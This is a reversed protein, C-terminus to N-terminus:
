REIVKENGILAQVEELYPLGENDGSVTTVLAGVANAFELARGPSFGNLVSYIYGADFGDGAGVTDIPKISFAEKAYWTKDYLVKAGNVGDKVVLQQIEYHKACNELAKPSTDGIIMEIEDLGTLLIDVFPFIEQYAAKAQELTWLKLRINPDFSVTIDKERAIELVRKTIELNKPNIALFVGTLHILDIGELMEEKIDEPVMTLIPSNYRYYFTKGTGDERIEKFNLSSPYGEVFEVNTMDVGEGRAFNYIVRAFEDGGLRSAWKIHLGLRACGIAFNLEAGGVRRTFSPVYRLPGTESPDFTILADGLTFISFEKSM